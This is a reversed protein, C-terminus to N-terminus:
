ILCFAMRTCTAEDGEVYELIELSTGDEDYVTRADGRIGRRVRGPQGLLDLPGDDPAIYPLYGSFDLLTLTWDLNSFLEDREKGFLGNQEIVGRHGIRARAHQGRVVRGQHRPLVHQHCRRQRRHDKALGSMEQDNGALVGALQEVGCELQQYKTQLSEDVM